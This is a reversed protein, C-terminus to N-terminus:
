RRSDHPNLHSLFLDLIQRLLRDQGKLDRELNAVREELDIEDPSATKEVPHGRYPGRRDFGSNPDKQLEEIAKEVLHEEIHHVEELSAMLLVRSCLKNIRRPLGETHYHVVDFFRDSFAPDGHWDVVSLRHEIYGRTDTRSLSGLDVSAVVRERLQKLSPQALLELLRPQALFIIQLLSKHDTQLNLLMRLEEMSETPLNQAEDVILLSRQGARHRVLLLEKLKDIIAAKPSETCDIGFSTATTRLTDIPELQTTVLNATLYESADLQSLLRRSLTTKGSGTDGTIVIFGEGQNLGYTLYAMAKQHGLSEFFFRPDPSLRFPEERLGFYSEYM